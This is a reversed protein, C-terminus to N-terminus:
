RTSFNYTADNVMPRQLGCDQGGIADIPDTIRPITPWLHLHTLTVLETSKKGVLSVIDSNVSQARPSCKVKRCQRM